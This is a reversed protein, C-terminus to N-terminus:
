GFVSKQLNRLAYIGLELRRTGDKRKMGFWDKFVTFIVFEQSGLVLGETFYRVRCRLYEEVPLQGKAAIVGLAEEWSFGKRLPSGFKSVQCKARKRLPSGDEKLREREEGKGVM